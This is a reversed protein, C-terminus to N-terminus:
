QGNILAGVFLTSAGGVGFAHLQAFPLDRGSWRRSEGVALPYGVNASATIGWALNVVNAGTNKVELMGSRAVLFIDAVVADAGNPVAVNNAGTEYGVSQERDLVERLFTDTADFVALEVRFAIDAFAGIWWVGPTPILLAGKTGPYGNVGPTSLPAPQDAPREPTAYLALFEPQAPLSRLYRAYLLSPREFVYRDQPAPQTADAPVTIYGLAPAAPYRPWLTSGPVQAASGVSQPGLPGVTPRDFRARMAGDERAIPDGRAISPSGAISVEAAGPLPPPMNRDAM